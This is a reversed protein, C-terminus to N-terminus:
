RGALDFGAAFAEHDNSKLNNSSAHIITLAYRPKLNRDYVQAWSDAWEPHDPNKLYRDILNIIQSKTGPAIIGGMWYPFEDRFAWDARSEIFPIILLHKGGAATFLEDHAGPATQMPASPVWSADCSLFDEGWSSMSVVNLGASIMQNIVFNRDGVSESWTLHRYDAPQVTFLGLNSPADCGYQASDDRAQGAFFLSTKIRENKFGHNALRGWIGLKKLNGLPMPTALLRFDIRTQCHDRDTSEFKLATTRYLGLQDFQIRDSYLM